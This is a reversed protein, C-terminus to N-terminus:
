PRAARRATRTYLSIHHIQASFVLDISYSSMQLLFRILLKGLGDDPSIRLFSVHLPYVGDLTNMAPLVFCIYTVFLELEVLLDAIQITFLSPLLVLYRFARMGVTPVGKSRRWHLLPGEAGEDLM